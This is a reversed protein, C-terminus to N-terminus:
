TPQPTTPQPTTPQPTTPQPTTPTVFPNGIKTLAATLGPETSHNPEAAFLKGYDTLTGGGAPNVHCVGCTFNNGYLVKGAAQYAPLASVSMAMVLFLVLGTGLLIKKNM